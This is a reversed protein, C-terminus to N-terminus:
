AVKSRKGWFDIVVDVGAPTAYAVPFVAGKNAETKVTFYGGRQAAVNPMNRNGGFRSTQKRFMQIEVLWATLTRVNTSLIDALETMGILGDANCYADWKGAKPRAVELERSLELERELVALYKRAMEIESMPKSTANEAERTKVAFYAQAEAVQPKNPDGNMAVLYAAYRSLRYDIRSPGGQPVVERIRSFAQESFTGTNEASRIAREVVGEFREWKEYGMVVMLERALWYENGDDDFHRIRDFPSQPPEGSSSAITTEAM